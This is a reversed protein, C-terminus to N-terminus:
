ARSCLSSERYSEAFIVFNHRKLFDRPLSCFLTSVKKKITTRLAICLPNGGIRAIVEAKHPRLQDWECVAETLSM